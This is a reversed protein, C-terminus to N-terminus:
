ADSRVTRLAISILAGVMLLLGSIQIIQAITAHQPLLQWKWMLHAWAHTDGAIPELEEVHADAMYASIRVLNEGLWWMCALSALRQNYWGLVIMAAAPIALQALTGGLLHVTQGAWDLAAYGLRHIAEDLHSIIAPGGASLMVAATCAALVVFVALGPLRVPTLWPSRGGIPARLPGQPKPRPGALKVAPGATPPPELQRIGSASAPLPASSGSGYRSDLPRLDLELPAPRPPERDLVTDSPASSASPAPLEPLEPLASALGPQSPPRDRADLTALSLSGLNDLAAALSKREDDSAAVGSADASDVTGSSHLSSETSAETWHLTDAKGASRQATDATPLSASAASAVVEVDDLIARVSIVLAQGDASAFPALASALEAVNQYREEPKKHLCRDVVACFEAPLEAAAESLPRAPEYILQAL